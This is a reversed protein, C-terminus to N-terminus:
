EGSPLVTNHDWNIATSSTSKICVLWTLLHRKVCILVNLFRFSSLAWLACDGGTWWRAPLLTVHRWRARILKFNIGRTGDSQLRTELQKRFPGWVYPFWSRSSERDRLMMPWMVMRNALHWKRNTTWQFLAMIEQRSIWVWFLNVFVAVFWGKVFLCSPDRIANVYFSWYM